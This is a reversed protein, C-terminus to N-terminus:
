QAYWYSKLESFKNEHQYVSVEIKQIKPNPTPVLSGKVQWTEGLMEKELDLTNPATPLTILQLRAENVVERGVWNAIVKQRLYYADKINQSTSKLLATLAISLITLAILIEILTFGAKNTMRFSLQSKVMRIAM